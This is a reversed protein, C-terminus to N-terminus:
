SLVLSLQCIRSHRECMCHSTLGVRIYDTETFIGLLDNDRETDKQYVLAVDFTGDTIAAIVDLVSEDAAARYYGGERGALKLIRSAPSSFGFGEPTLRCSDDDLPLLEEDTALDAADKKFFGGIM